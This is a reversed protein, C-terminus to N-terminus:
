SVIIDADEGIHSMIQAKLQQLYRDVDAETQMPTITHTDLHIMKRKRVPVPPDAPKGKGTGGTGSPTAPIARRILESQENYFQETSLAAKLAYLNNTHTLSLITVDEKAFVDRSVKSDAAYKELEVFVAHYKEKIENVLATRCENLQGKLTRMMKMYSPMKDWPEEDTLIMRYKDLAKRQEDTLFAFNDRNDHYFDVCSKYNEFQDDSFTKVSKCRDFLRAADERADVITQFFQQPNRIGEWEEMLTIAEDIIHTFPCNGLDRSLRRYNHLLKHLASDEKERCERYLETSDNSGKVTMVNFIHKWSEIFKNILEQSIAKAKEVTFKGADRVINRATDERSVDPNNNYNYAFLHRRVLENLIFISALDSWGYPKGAFARIVDAVTVDHVQRDLWLKMKQEAPGLPTEVVAPDIPALIKGALESQTKPIYSGEVLKACDYLKEMHKSLAIKYRDARKNGGLETSSLINQGSIVPCSDLMAEFKPKIEKIMLDKARTAFVEKTRQREESVANSERIFEQVRCYYMFNNRLEQDEKYQPYLFFVLHTDSKNTFAFQNVDDTSANTVFDVYIDANSSLYNRGEISAGVNFSRTIYTEKNAPNGFFPFFIKRLEESYTNNGVKQNSIIQAVKSEEETYFEYIETNSETKVKRIVAKDMLYNLVSSVENKIDYKNEDVKTMLLTVINDITASFQPKDEEALNCIMFLVNVVRSCFEQKKEDTIMKVADRANSIARQGLHQMSGQFMAGFFRDFSIFEGVEMEATEKAISYTINILSRENGKVQKDVYNMKTFSDLVKMILKFQYPVFPYYAAFDQKTQFAQYTTPLVFQGDLKAKDREYMQELEIEVEGKKDLIRKQTIYEPSTGQLSARVEFRGMIKGFNESTAAINCSEIVQSLDQQATCAFWVQSNCVECVRTVVEQLQLLVDTRGDIFQSIEDVFFVIRYDKSNQQEVHEHLENAFSEVSINVDNNKIRERIVDISLEPDVDQAMQLALDLKSGSFRSIHRKWDYGKEAVHKLFEEYKGDDHLPKELNQALALHSKNLGRMGNFENWFVHTFVTKQDSNADHVTGINFMVSDVKARTTYWRVLDDMDGIEVDLEMPKREAVAERLRALAEAGHNPSLCYNVFKLFHSKGSGYYGNIWIGTHSCENNRINKLIKYLNNIIENTFVYEKIEIEITKEDLDSASVAPNVTRELGKEYLDKFKM